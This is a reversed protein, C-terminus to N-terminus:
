LCFCLCGPVTPYACLPASYQTGKEFVTPAVGSKSACVQLGLVQPPLLILIDPNDVAIYLPFLFEQCGCPAEYSHKDGTGPCGVGETFETPMFCAHVHHLNCANVSM